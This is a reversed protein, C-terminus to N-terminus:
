LKSSLICWSSIPSLTGVITNKITPCPSFYPVFCSNYCKKSNSFSFLAPKLNRSSVVYGQHRLSCGTCFFFISLIQSLLSTKYIWSLNSFYDTQVTQFFKFEVQEVYL